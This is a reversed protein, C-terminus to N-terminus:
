LRGLGRLRDLGAVLDLDVELLADDPVERLTVLVAGVRERLEHGLQHPHAAQDRPHAAAQLLDASSPASGTSSCSGSSWSTRGGDRNAWSRVNGGGSRM